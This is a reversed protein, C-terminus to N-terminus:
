KEVFNGVQQIIIGEKWEEGVSGRGRHWSLRMQKRDFKNKNEPIKYLHAICYTSAEKM